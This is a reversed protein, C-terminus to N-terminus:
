LYSVWDRVSQALNAITNIFLGPVWQLPPHVICILIIRFPSPYAKVLQMFYSICDCAPQAINNDRVTDNFASDDSCSYSLSM